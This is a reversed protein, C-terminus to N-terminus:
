RIITVSGPKVAQLDDLDIYQPLDPLQSATTMRNNILWQAEDKMAVVLTQDLALSFAYNPWTTALIADDISIRQQVIARAAGSHLAVFKEAQVLAALLRRITETHGRAWGTRGTVVGFSQQDAQGPWVTVGNSMQEQIRHVYPQYAMVADVRGSVLADVWQSPPVDDLTVDQIHLGRSELVRGLYFPSIGQRVLGIKKSRLDAIERIGRDQRCVIFFSVFDAITAVVRVNEQQLAKSVIAFETTLALDLDGKTMTELAVTGTDYEDINVVLGNQAFYGQNEAIYLLTAIENRVTGIRLSEAAGVSGQCSALGLGSLLVLVIALVPRAARKGFIVSSPAHNATRKM